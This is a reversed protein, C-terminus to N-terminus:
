RRPWRGGSRRRGGCPSPSRRSRGRPVGVLPSRRRAASRAGSVAGRSAAGREPVTLLGSPLSALMVRRYRHAYSQARVLLGSALPTLGHRVNEFSDQADALAAGQAAELVVGLRDVVEFVRELLQGVVLQAVLGDLQALAVDFPSDSSSRSGSANAATRSAALRVSPMRWKSTCSIPPAARCRPLMASIFVPSPLVRAAVM